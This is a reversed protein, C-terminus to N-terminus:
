LNLLKLDFLREVLWAFGLVFIAVSAGATVIRFEMRNKLFHLGPLMVVFIMLQGIEVGVNFSLVSLVLDSKGVIFDKLVSAFGFGHILGFCFTILWRYKVEKRFLNELAIYCISLAIVTEVFRSGLSVIQLAALLLTISHAVTFATIIKLVERASLGVVILALLFAIHDYGILIHEIGLVIFERITAWVSKKASNNLVPGSTQGHSASNAIGKDSTQGSPVAEPADAAAKRFVAANKLNGDPSPINTKRDAITSGANDKQASDTTAVTGSGAGVAPTAAKPAPAPEHAAGRISFEWIRSNANFSYNAVPHSYDFVKQVADPPADSQYLYALNVHANGTEEFLLRYDIKVRNEPNNFGIGDVSLWIRWLSGELVIRNVKVPYVTDNVSISLKESVYPQIVNITMRQLQEDPPADLSYGGGRVGRIEPFLSAGLEITALIRDKGFSWKSGGLTAEHAHLPIATLLLFAAMLFM